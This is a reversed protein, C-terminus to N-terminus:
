SCLFGAQAGLLPFLQCCSRAVRSHLIDGVLVVKEGSLDKKGRADLLTHADGLSQTPHSHAGWGGNVLPCDQKKSWNLAMSDMPFDGGARLVVLDPGMTMINAFTDQDEEGKDASTGSAAAQIFLSQAGIRHCAMEFSIRTRTSSEFFLLVVLPPPPNSPTAARVQGGVLPRSCLSPLPEFSQQLFSLAKDRTLDSFDLFLLLGM